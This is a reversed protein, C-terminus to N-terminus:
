HYTYARQATYDKNTKSGRKHPNTKHGIPPQGRNHEDWGGEGRASSAQTAGQLKEGGDTMRKSM